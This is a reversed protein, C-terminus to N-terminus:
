KILVALAAPTNMKTNELVTNILEVVDRNQCIRRSIVSGFGWVGDISNFAAGVGKENKISITTDGHGFCAIANLKYCGLATVLLRYSEFIGYDESYFPIKLEFLLNLAINRLWYDENNFVANLNAEAIKYQRIDLKGDRDRLMGTINLKDIHNFLQTLFGFKMIYDPKIKEIDSFMGGKIFGDHLEKLAQPIFNYNKEKIVESLIQAAIAGNIVATEVSYRKDSILDYFFEFIDSRYACEPRKEIDDKKIVSHIMIVQKNPINVLRMANKDTVIRKSIEPCSMHCSRYCNSFDKLKLSYGLRLLRPYNKCTESLYEAGLEKQIRCLNEDTLFPCRDEENLKIMKMESNNSSQEFLNMMERLEDSCDPSNKVKDIEEQSWNIVWGCCCTYQCSSGICHFDNYYEPQRFYM